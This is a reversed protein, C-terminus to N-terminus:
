DPLSVVIIVLLSRYYLSSPFPFYWHVASEYTGEKGTGRPGSISSPAPIYVNM